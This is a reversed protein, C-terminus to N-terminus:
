KRNAIVPRTAQDGLWRALAPALGVSAVAPTAARAGMTPKPPRSRALGVATTVASRTSCLVPVPLALDDALGALGAGALIVVDAGGQVSELCAAQLTAMAAAPDRAIDGGSPAVTAIHALRDRLGIQAVFRELMPGWREGGTVIGFRSGILCAQHCAAEAMGVVPVPALEQLAALGPDGFCALLVADHDEFHHAFADLAAHAAIAAAAESAIYAAGFRGTAATFRCDPAVREALQTVRETISATTNPNILLIRM